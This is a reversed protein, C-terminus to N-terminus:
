EFITARYWPFRVIRHKALRSQYKVKPTPYRQRIKEIVFGLCDRPSEELNCRLTCAIYDALWDTLQVICHKISNSEIRELDRVRRPHLPLLVNTWLRNVRMLDVFHGLIGSGISFCTAEHLAEERTGREERLNSMFVNLRSCFWCALPNQLVVFGQWRTKFLDFHWSAM